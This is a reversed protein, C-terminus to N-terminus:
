DEAPVLRYLNGPEADSARRDAYYIADGIVFPASTAWGVGQHRWAVTGDTQDLAYLHPDYSGVLVHDVTATLSGIVGGGTQREWRVAGTDIDIAFVTGAHNGVFAVRGSAIAPGSMVEEDTEVAWRETGDALDVGYVHGDWSGFVALGDHVAVPGKIARATEFRWARELGPFTWAYCFGDNSGVVLRGAEPDIAITSHPHDTPRDDFWVVEGTEADVAAVSGSPDYYEVAVYCVGNHYVPSSGIADGLPCKWVRQGSELDFAYLAGDYAGVYVTDNAIAPTGHIGRETPDVGATWAVTGDPTVRRVTGTDAAVIV